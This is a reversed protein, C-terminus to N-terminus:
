KTMEYIRDGGGDKAHGYSSVLAYHLPNFLCDREPSLPRFGTTPLVIVFAPIMVTFYCHFIDSLIQVLNNHVKFAM